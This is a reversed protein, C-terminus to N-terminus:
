EVKEFGEKVGNEYPMIVEIANSRFNYFFYSTNSGKVRRVHDTLLKEVYLTACYYGLDRASEYADDAGIRDFHANMTAKGDKLATIIGHFAEVREDSKFYVTSDVGELLLWVNTAFHRLDYDYAYYYGKKTYFDSRCRQTFEEAELQVFNIVLHNEDAQPLASPDSVEVIPIHLRGLAFLFAKNFKSIYLSDDVKDLIKTMAGIVSDQAAENLYAFDTISNLSTNTHMVRQPLCVYIQETTAKPHRKHKNIYKKAYHYDSTCGCAALVAVALIIHLIRQKM